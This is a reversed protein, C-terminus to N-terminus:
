KVVLADVPINPVLTNIQGQMVQMTQYVVKMSEYNQNLLYLIAILGIILILPMFKTLLELINNDKKKDSVVLGDKYGTNYAEMAIGSVIESSLDKKFDGYFDWAEAFGQIAFIVPISTGEFTYSYQNVRSVEKVKDGRENTSWFEVFRIDKTTWEISVKKPRAVKIFIKGGKKKSKKLQMFTLAIKLFNDSGKLSISNEDYTEVTEPHKLKYEEYEANIQEQMEKQREFEELQKQENAQVFEQEKRKAEEYVQKFQLEKESLKEGEKEKNTILLYDLDQKLEPMAKVVDNYDEKPEKSKKIAKKEEEESVDYEYEEEDIEIPEAKSTATVEGKLKQILDEAEEKKLEGM